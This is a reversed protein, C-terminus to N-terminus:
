VKYVIYYKYYWKYGYGFCVVYGNNVIFVVVFFM